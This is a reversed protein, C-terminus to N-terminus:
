HKYRIWAINFFVGANFKDCLMLLALNTLKWEVLMGVLVGQIKMIIKDGNMNVPTQVFANPVNAIM